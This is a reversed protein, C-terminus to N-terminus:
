PQVDLLSSSSPINIIRCSLDKAKRLLMSPANKYPELENLLTWSPRSMYGADNLSELLLDRYMSSTDDLILTQLWYNSRCHTVESFLNVGQIKSLSEQYKVTLRRKQEIKKEIMELQACGLAANLNPLRYNFGVMDHEYSWRHKLKATTTIHKAKTALSKDDTLIAGGGGTTIIKNGNFSLVGLKGFTGTQQGKYTSGLSEAADEVIELRFEEALEILKEMDVPHGFTHMPIIAKIRRGSIKNYLENGRLNTTESLYDRLDGFDIGLSIPDSDVFHPIAGCYHVANATAVFTLAPVLVEDNKEVGALLLAVHLASTGNVVSIAYKSKTYDALDEEFKDVFEGVSSVYTSHICEKIYEIENGNFVPEHLAASKGGIVKAISEVISDCFDLVGQNNKM